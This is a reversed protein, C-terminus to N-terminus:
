RTIPSPYTGNIVARLYKMGRIDDKTPCRIHGVTELVEQHLRRM